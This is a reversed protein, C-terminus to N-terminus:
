EWTIIWLNDRNERPSRIKAGLSAYWSLLDPNSAVGLVKGHAALIAKLAKRMIENGYGHGRIVSRVQLCTFFSYREHTLQELLAQNRRDRFRDPTRPFHLIGGLYERSPDTTVLQFPVIDEPEKCGLGKLVHDRFYTANTSYHINRLPELWPIEHGFEQMIELFQLLFSRGRLSRTVLQMTYEGCQTFLLLVVGYWLM